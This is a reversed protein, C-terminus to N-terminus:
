NGWEWKEDSSGPKRPSSAKKREAKRNAREIPRIDTAPLLAQLHDGLDLAVMVRIFTDLSVGEGNEMRSITRRSVGATEALATQSINKLLRISALRDCLELELQQSSQLLTKQSM